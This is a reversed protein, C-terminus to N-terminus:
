PLTKEGLKPHVGARPLTFFFVSGKGEESTFWVKGGAWELASKVIYLGLGTGDPEIEKVNDARFLKTFIKDQEHVPIGCGTDAISFTVNVPDTKVHITVTGGEATYKLANSILNQFTLHVIKPDAIITLVNKFDPALIKMKKVRIHPAEEDLVEHLASELNVSASEIVFTGLDIRSVNLLANVLAIMRQNAEYIHKLYKKQTPSFETVGGSLLKEAYWSTITLPTRLQHSALSVFESKARDVEMEHTIDRFILIVGLRGRSEVPAISFAVPFMTGNPRMFYFTGAKKKRSALVIKIPHEEAPILRQREDQIQFLAHYSKKVSDKAKVGLMEEAARNVMYIKGDEGVAVVGDAISTLFAEDITKEEEMQDREKQLDDTAQLLARRSDDLERIADALAKNKEAVNGRLERLSGRGRLVIVLWLVNLVLFIMFLKAILALDSSDHLAFLAYSTTLFAILMVATFAINRKKM